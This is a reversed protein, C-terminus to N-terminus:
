YNYFHQQRNKELVVFKEKIFQNSTTPREKDTLLSTAVEVMNDDGETVSSKTKHGERIKPKRMVLCPMNKLIKFKCKLLCTALVCLIIIVSMVIILYGWLPFHETAMPEIQWKNRLDEVLNGLPFDELNALKPPIKITDNSFPVIRNIDDWVRLDSINYDKLMNSAFSEINETSHGEFYGLLSFHNSTAQCSKHLTLFGFPPDVQQRRSEEKKCSLHFVTPKDLIVLYNDNSLYFATPLTTQHIWVNCFKKVHVKDQNFNSLLCNLVVNANRIPSKVNCIQLGSQVCDKVQTETLLIYQSRDSNIALYNFELKYYALLKKDDKDVRTTGLLPVPLSYARFINFQQSYQVLPVRISIIIHKGDFYTMLDSIFGFVKRKHRGQGNTEKKYDITMSVKWLTLTFERLSLFREGMGDLNLSQRINM